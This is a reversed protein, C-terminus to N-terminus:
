MRGACVVGFHRGEDIAFHGFGKQRFLFLGPPFAQGLDIAEGHFLM